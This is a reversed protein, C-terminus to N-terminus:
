TFWFLVLLTASGLYRLAFSFLFLSYLIFYLILLITFCKDVSLHLHQLILFLLLVHLRKMLWVTMPWHDDTMLIMCDDREWVCEWMNWVCVCLCAVTMFNLCKKKFMKDLRKVLRYTLSLCWVVLIISHFELRVKWRYCCFCVSVTNGYAIRM